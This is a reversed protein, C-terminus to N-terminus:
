KTVQVDIKKVLEKTEGMPVSVSLVGNTYTAEIGEETAGPPLTVSRHFSGYSFESRGKHEKKETREAQITLRGNQISVEIDKEPDIGPIEARVVYHGDEVTDELRLLHSGFAAPSASPSILNWLDNIDPLLVQRHTPLSSM